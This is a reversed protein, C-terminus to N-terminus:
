VPSMPTVVNRVGISVQTSSPPPPIQVARGVEGIVMDGGGRESRRKEKGGGGGGGNPQKVIADLEVIPGTGDGGASGNTSPYEHIRVRSDDQWSLNFDVDKNIVLGRPTRHRDEYSSNAKYGESTSKEGILTPAHHRLFSKLALFCSCIIVLNAEVVSNQM